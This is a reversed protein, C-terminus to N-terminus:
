QAGVKAWTTSGNTNIYLVGGSTVWLAGKGATHTPASASADPVIRLPAYSTAHSAEAVIGYTTDFKADGYVGIGGISPAGIVGTDGSGYVGTDGGSGYIAIGAGAADCFGRVAVSNAGGGDNYGYVGGYLSSTSSTSGEVGNGTSSTGGIATYTSSSIGKVAVRTANASGFLGIVSDGGSTNIGITALEEVTTDGRDGYFHLENDLAPNLEIRKGSSATKITAVTLVGGEYKLYTNSGDGVYMRPSASNYQVQWGANGFVSNNIWASPLSGSTGLDIAGLGTNEIKGTTIIGEDIAQTTVENYNSYAEEVIFSDIETTGAAASFNVLIIPRIYRVDPHMEGPSSLTGAISTGVSAGFGKTYGTYESWSSSPSENYACHLHQNLYSDAGSANVFVVGDDGVGAMGVYVVGAGATRRIRITSKYLKTPDFPINKFHILRAQDDGSNDGVRLIKGGSESDTVSVISLEGSGEHNVWSALSTSLDFSEKFGSANVQSGPEAPQLTTIDTGDSYSYDGATASTPTTAVLNSINESSDELRTWYYRLDGNDRKVFHTHTGSPSGSAITYTPTGPIPTSATHEYIRLFSIDKDAPNTWTINFGGETVSLTVSSPDNPAATKGEVTERYTASESSEGWVNISTVTIDYTEGDEVPYIFVERDDRDPKDRILSQTEGEKGYRIEYHDVNRDESPTWTLKIRSLITGDNLALLADTGSEADLNTVPDPKTSEEENEPDEKGPIFEVLYAHVQESPRIYEGSYFPGSFNQVNTIGPNYILSTGNQPTAGIASIHTNALDPVVSSSGDLVVHLAGPHGGAGSGCNFVKGRSTMSRTALGDSGSTNISGNVGETMGKCIVRLGGGSAGGDNAQHYEYNFGGGSRTVIANPYSSDGSTGVLTESLSLSRAPWYVKGNIVVENEIYITSSYRNVTLQGGGINRRSTSAGLDPDTDWAYVNYGSSIQGYGATGDAKDIGSSPSSPAVAGAYGGSDSTLLGNYTFLGEVQIQVALNWDITQGTSLTLDGIHYFVANRADANGTLTESGITGSSYSSLSKINIGGQDTYFSNHVTAGVSHASASTGHAGRTVGTLTTSTIGTYTVSEAGGVEAAGSDPFGTTDLSLTTDGAGAGSTLTTENSYLVTLDESVESLAGPLNGSGELDVSVNGDVEDIAVSVVEYSGILNRSLTTSDRWEPLNVKVIDGVELVDMSPRLTLSFQKPPSARRDRLRNCIRRITAASHHSGHLSPIKLELPKARQYTALSTADLLITERITDKVSESYQWEIHYQSAVKDYRYTLGSSMATVNRENLEVVYPSSNIIAPSPSIGLEGNSHVSLFYGIQPLLQKQIFKKGDQKKEGSIRVIHGLNTSIDWISEPLGTFDSNRIWVTDINLHWNSPFNKGSQGYLAGLLLGYLVKGLTTEIYVYENIKPNSSGSKVEYKVPKTNLAGRLCNTFTTATKGFYRIIEDKIKIYGVEQSPADTYNEDHEMLEFDAASLVSISMMTETVNSNNTHATATTSQTGRVCGTLTNYTKGSYSIIENDIIVSGSLDFPNTNYTFVGSGHSAATSGDYGRTCGTFSSATKGSYSIHEQDIIIVGTSSFADTSGVNITTVSADISGSLSTTNSKINTTTVNLTTVTDNHTSTLTVERPAELTQTLVTSSTRFIDQKLSRQIDMVKFNHINDPSDLGEIVRVGRVEYFSWDLGVFGKYLTCKKLRLGKAAEIKDAVLGSVLGDVDIFEFGMGGITSNFNFNDLKQSTTSISKICGDIVNASVPHQALSSSTFYWLDSGDTSFDIEITFLPQKSRANHYDQYQENYERM